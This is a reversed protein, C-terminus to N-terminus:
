KDHIAGLKSWLAPVLLIALITYMFDEVPAVGVKLGLIKGPDYDVISLGVIINDFVATLVVLIGLTVLTAKSPRRPKIRVLVCVAVIFVLNLLLYTVAM